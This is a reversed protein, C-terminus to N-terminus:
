LQWNGMEALTRPRWPTQPLGRLAAERTLMKYFEDNELEARGEIQLNIWLEETVARLDARLKERDPASESPVGVPGPPTVAPTRGQQKVEASQEPAVHNGKGSLILDLEEAVLVTEECAANALRFASGEGTYLWHINARIGPALELEAFRVCKEADLFMEQRRVKGIASPGAYGLHAGLQSDSFYTLNVLAVFRGCLSALIKSDRSRRM